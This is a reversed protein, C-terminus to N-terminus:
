GRYRDQRLPLTESLTLLDLPGHSAVFVARSLKGGPWKIPFFAHNPQQRTVYVHSFQTKLQGMIWDRAPRCCHGHLAKEAGAKERGVNAKGNDHPSVRTELLFLGKCMQAMGAICEAPKGLHYLLGYCFVVDFTGLREHSSPDEVDAVFAPALKGSRKNGSWRNIGSHL